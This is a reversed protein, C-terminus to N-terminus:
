VYMGCREATTAATTAATEATTTATTTNTAATAATTPCATTIPPVVDRCGTGTAEQHQVGLGSGGNVENTFM